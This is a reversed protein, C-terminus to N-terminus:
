IIKLILILNFFQYFLTYGSSVIRQWNEAYLKHIKQVKKKFAQFSTNFYGVLAQVDHNGFEISM